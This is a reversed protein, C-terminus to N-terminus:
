VCKLTIFSTQLFQGKDICTIIKWHIQIANM